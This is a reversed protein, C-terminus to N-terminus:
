VNLLFYINVYSWLLYIFLRLIDLKREWELWLKRFESFVYMLLVFYVIKSIYCGKKFLVVVSFLIYYIIFVCFDCGDIWYLYIYFNLYYYVM